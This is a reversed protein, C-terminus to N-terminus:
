IKYKLVIAAIGVLLLLTPITWIILFSNVMSKIPNSERYIIPVKDGTNYSMYRGLMGPICRFIKGSKDNFYIIPHYVIRNGWTNGSIGIHKREEIGSVEGFTRIANKVFVVRNVLIGLGIVFIIESFFRLINALSSEMNGKLYRNGILLKDTKM